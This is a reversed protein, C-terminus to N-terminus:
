KPEIIPPTLIGLPDFISSVLILLGRKTMPIDKQIIKNTPWKGHGM